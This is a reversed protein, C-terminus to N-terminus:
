GRGRGMLTAKGAAIRRLANRSKRSWGINALIASGWRPPLAATHVLQM